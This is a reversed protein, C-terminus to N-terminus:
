YEYGYATFSLRIANAVTEQRTFMISNGSQLEIEGRLLQANMVGASDLHLAHSLYLPSTTTASGTAVVRMRFQTSCVTGTASASLMIQQLRLRKGASVSYRAASLTQTFGLNQTVFITEESTAGVSSLDASIFLPNRGCNTFDVVQLAYPAQVGKTTVGALEHRTNWDGLAIAQRQIKAVVSAGSAHVKTFSATISTGSVATVTIYEQSSGTDYSLVQDVAINTASAVTFNNSGASTIITSSTTNVLLFEYTEVTKINGLGQFSQDSYGIGSNSASM